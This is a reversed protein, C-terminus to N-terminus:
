LKTLLDNTALIDEVLFCIKLTKINTLAYEFLFLKMSIFLLFYPMIMTMMRM